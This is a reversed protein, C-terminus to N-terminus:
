NLSKWEVAKELEPNNSHFLLLLNLAADLSDIKPSVYEGKGPSVWEAQIEGEESEDNRHVGFLGGLQGAKVRAIKISPRLNPDTWKLSQFQKKVEAEDPSKIVNATDYVGERKNYTQVTMTLGDATQTSPTEQSPDVAQTKDESSGSCGPLVGVLALCLFVCHLQPVSM